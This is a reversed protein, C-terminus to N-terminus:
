QFDSFDILTLKATKGGKFPAGDVSVIMGVQEAPPAVAPRARLRTKIEQLEKQISAQGEKLAEIEKRLAKLDDGPAQALSPQASLFILAALAALTAFRKVPSARRPSKWVIM